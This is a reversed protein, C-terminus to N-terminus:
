ISPDHKLEPLPKMAALRGELERSCHWIIEGIKKMNKEFSVPGILRDMVSCFVTYGAIAGAIITFRHDSIDMVRFALWAFGIFGAGKALIASGGNNWEVAKRADENFASAEKELTKRTDELKGSAWRLRKERFEAPIDKFESLRKRLIELREATQDLGIDTARNRASSLKRLTSYTVM